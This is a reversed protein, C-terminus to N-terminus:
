SKQPFPPIKSPNKSHSMKLNQLKTPNTTNKNSEFGQNSLLQGSTETDEAKSYSPPFVLSCVLLVSLQQPLFGGSVRQHKQTEKKQPITMLPKMNM